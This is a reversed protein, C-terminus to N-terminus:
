RVRVPWTIRRKELGSAQGPVSSAVSGDGDPETNLIRVRGRILPLPM